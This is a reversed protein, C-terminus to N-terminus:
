KILNIEIKDLEKSKFESMNKNIPILVKPIIIIKQEEGKLSFDYYIINGNTSGGSLELENGKEDQVSLDTLHIAKELNSLPLNSLPTSNSNEKYKEDSLVEVKFKLSVPSIRIDDIKLKYNLNNEYVNITKSFNIIKLDDVINSTNITTKFEFDGFSKTLLKGRQTKSEGINFNNFKIKLDYNKNKELKDLIEISTEGIGDKDTDISTLDITYLFEKKNEKKIHRQNISGGQGPFYMDGITIIPIDPMFDKKSIKNKKFDFNKYDLSVSLILKRDDIMVDGLNLTIGNQTISQNGEFKYKDFESYDKGLFSEIQSIFNDIYAFTKDNYLFVAGLFSVVLISAILKKGKNNKYKIKSKIIKKLSEKDVEEEGYKTFDIKENNLVKYKDIM